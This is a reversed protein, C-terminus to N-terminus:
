QELEEKIQERKEQPCQCSCPLLYADEVPGWLFCLRQGESYKIVVFGGHKLISRDFCEQPARLQWPQLKALRSEGRWYIKESLLPLPPPSLPTQHSPPPSLLKKCRREWWTLDTHLLHCRGRAQGKRVAWRGEKSCGLARQPWRKWLSYKKRARLNIYCKTLLSGGECQAETEGQGREEGCAETSFGEHLGKGNEWRSAYFFNYSLVKSM